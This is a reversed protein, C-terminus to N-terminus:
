PTLQSTPYLTGPTQRHHVESAQSTIPLRRLLVLSVQVGAEPLSGHIAEADDRARDQHTGDHRAHRLGDVQM